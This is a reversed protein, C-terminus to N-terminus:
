LTVPLPWADSHHDAQQGWTSCIDKKHKSVKESLPPLNHLAKSRKQGKNQTWNSQFTPERNKIVVMKM